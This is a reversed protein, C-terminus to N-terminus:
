GQWRGPLDSVQGGPQQGELAAVGMDIKEDAAGLLESVM